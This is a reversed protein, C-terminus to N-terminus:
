FCCNDEKLKLFEESCKKFKFFFFVQGRVSCVEFGGSCKKFKLTPQLFSVKCVKFGGQDIDSSSLAEIRTHLSSTAPNFLLDMTLSGLDPAAEKM